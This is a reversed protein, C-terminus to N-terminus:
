GRSILALLYVALGITVLEIFGLGINALLDIM